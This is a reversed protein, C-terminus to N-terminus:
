KCVNKCAKDCDTSGWDCACCSATDCAGLTFLNGVSCAVGATLRVGMKLACVGNYAAKNWVEGGKATNNQASDYAGKDYDWTGLNCPAGGNSKESSIEKPSAIALAIASISYASMTIFLGIMASKLIKIAKGIQDDNGQATMWLIGAYVTLALFITGVYALVSRIIKGVTQSLFGASVSTDYGAESAVQGTMNNIDIAALVISPILILFSLLILLFGFKIKM